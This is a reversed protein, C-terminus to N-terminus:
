VNSDATTGPTGPAVAANTEPLAPRRGFSMGDFLADVQEPPLAHSYHFGQGTRCGLLTLETAQSESEVGEAVTDLHLIHGLRIVAEAVASGQSTGDLATVFCDDLKLVDVPLRAIHRLSSYGTGFDDLAFRVGYEHLAAMQALLPEADVVASEAIEMILDTPAFGTAELTSLVATVVSPSQLQRRSVNVSLTLRPGSTIRQQWQRVHRCARFLVWTGIRDILDTQEALPIFDDPQLLGLTPHQWRVLAEFGVLEGSDLSVVPQYHLRLQGDDVAHRLDDELTIASSSPDHMGEVYLQWRSGSDRKAHYMATDARHLLEDTGLPAGASLAIGISARPRLVINNFSVPRALDALIRNAVAIAQDASQVSLVVAFEDGGLRGVADSGLVCRRLSGALSVLLADGAVHGFTDNVQKLGDLDLYLVAVDSESAGLQAELTRLLEARNALSTLADHSAEYVLQEQFARRETVDRHNVVLGAVAPDESLDRASVDHWRWDGGAQRVRVETLGDFSLDAYDDPHILDRYPTQVLDGPLYGMIRTLAGSASTIRGDADVVLIVDSSDQVLAGFREATRRLTRESEARVRDTEQQAKDVFRWYAIQVACTALVFGAHLLAYPVPSTQARPDSYLMTPALEGMVLHEATVLLVSMLLPLWDQYLSILGVMLFFGFHLDTRGGGISVLLASSLLLGLSVVAAGTRRSRVVLSAVACATMVAAMVWVLRDGGASHDMGPMATGAMDRGAPGTGTDDILVAVLGLIPIQLWLIVRLVRHRSRFAEDTLRAQSFARLLGADARTM